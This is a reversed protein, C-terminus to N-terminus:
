QNNKNRHSAERRKKAKLAAKERSDKGEEEIRLWGIPLRTRKNNKEIDKM